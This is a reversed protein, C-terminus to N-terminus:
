MYGLKKLSETFIVTLLIDTEYLSIRLMVLSMSETGLDESTKKEM